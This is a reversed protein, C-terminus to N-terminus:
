CLALGSHHLMREPIRREDFHFPNVKSGPSWRYLYLAKLVTEFGIHCPLLQRFGPEPAM